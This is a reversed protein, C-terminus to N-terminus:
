HRAKADVGEMASGKFRRKLIVLGDSGQVWKQMGMGEEYFKM